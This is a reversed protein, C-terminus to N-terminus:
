KKAGWGVCVCLHSLGRARLGRWMRRMKKRKGVCSSNNSYWIKGERRAQVRNRSERECKEGRERGKEVHFRTRMKEGESQLFIKADTTGRRAWERLMTAVVSDIRYGRFAESSFFFNCTSNGQPLFTLLNLERKTQLLTNRRMNRFLSFGGREVGKARRRSGNIMTVLPRSLGEEQRCAVDPWAVGREGAQSANASTLVYFQAGCHKNATARRL